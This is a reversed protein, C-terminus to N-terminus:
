PSTQTADHATVTAKAKRLDSVIRELETRTTAVPKEVLVIREPSAAALIEADSSAIASLYLTSTRWLLNYYPMWGIPVIAGMVAASAIELVGAGGPSPAFFEFIILVLQAEFIHRFSSADIGLFRLCAYASVARVLPFPVSLICIAVFTRKGRRLFRIVDNRYNYIVDVIWAAPRGM